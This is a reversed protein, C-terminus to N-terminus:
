DQKAICQWRVLPRKVSRYFDLVCSCKLLLTCHSVLLEDFTDIVSWEFHYVIIVEILDPATPKFRRFFIIVDIFMGM